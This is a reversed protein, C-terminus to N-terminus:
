VIMTDLSVTRWCSRMRQHSGRRLGWGGGRRLMRALKTTAHGGDELHLDGLAARRAQAHDHRVVAEEPGKLFQPDPEAYRTVSCCRPADDLRRPGVAQLGARHLALRVLELVHRERQHDVPAEVVEEHELPVVRTAPVDVVRGHTRAGAIIVLEVLGEGADGDLERGILTECGAPLAASHEPAQDRGGATDPGHHDEGRDKSEEKNDGGDKDGGHHLEEAVAEGSFLADRQLRGDEAQRNGQHYLEQQQPQLTTQGHPQGGLDGRSHAGPHDQAQQPQGHGEVRLSAGTGECLSGQEDVLHASGDGGHQDRRRASQEDGEDPSEHEQGEVPRGSEDRDRDSQEGSERHAM